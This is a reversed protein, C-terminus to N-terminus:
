ETKEPETAPAAAPPEPASEETAPAPITEEVVQEAESIISGSQQHSSFYALTLSTLM